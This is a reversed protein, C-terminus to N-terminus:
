CRVLLCPFSGLPYSCASRFYSLQQAVWGCNILHFAKVTQKDIHPTYSVLTLRSSYYPVPAYAFALPLYDLCAKLSKPLASKQM